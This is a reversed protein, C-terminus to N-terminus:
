MGSMSPSMSESDGESDGEYNENAGSYDKVVADIDLTSGDGFTLTMTVDAGPQLDANVGMLMIHNGGPALEFSGGAPIVFGGDKEQMQMQGDSMVTEHLEVMDSVSTSASVLTVEADSSNSLTGFAATMEGTRVSKVWPNTITVAAAESRVPATTAESSSPGAESSSDSGCATLAVALLPALVVLAIKM